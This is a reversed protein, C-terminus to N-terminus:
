KEEKPEEKTDDDPVYSVIDGIDCGLVKCMKELTSTNIHFVHKQGRRRWKVGSNLLTKIRVEEVVDSFRSNGEIHQSQNFGRTACAFSIM